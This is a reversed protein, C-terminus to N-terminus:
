RFKDSVAEEADQATPLINAALRQLRHGFKAALAAIAQESRAFLLTLIDRDEM